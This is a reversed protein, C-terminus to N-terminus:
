ALDIVAMDNDDQKGDTTDTVVCAANHAEQRTEREKRLGAFYAGRFASYLAINLDQAKEENECAFSHCEVHNQSIHYNFAFLHSDRQYIMSYSIKQLPIFTLLIDYERTRDVLSVGRESVKLCNMKSIERYDQQGGTKVVKEVSEQIGKVGPQKNLVFGLYRVRFSTEHVFKKSTAELGLM